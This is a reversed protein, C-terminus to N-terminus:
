WCPPAPMDRPLGMSKLNSEVGIAGGRLTFVAKGSSATVPATPAKTEVKMDANVNIANGRLEFVTKGPKAAGKPTVEIRVDCYEPLKHRLLMAFLKREYANKIENQEMM